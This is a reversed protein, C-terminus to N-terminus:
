ATIPVFSNKLFCCFYYTERSFLSRKTQLAWLEKGELAIKDKEHTIIIIKKSTVM